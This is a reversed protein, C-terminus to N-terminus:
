MWKGYNEFNCWDVWSIEKFRSRSGIWLFGLQKIENMIQDVKVEKGDFVLDNRSRWVVWLAIQMIGYILKRWKKCGRVQKHWGLIDKIGFGYIGSIKCWKSVLDWVKQALECGVFLHDVDEDYLGCIKCRIEGVIVNRRALAVLTPVRDLSLRWALFNVKIPIWNNWEFENGLDTFRAAQISNKLSKVSFMGSEELSWSWRDEGNGLVAAGLESTLTWCMKGKEPTIGWLFERRLRELQDIVGSPARYLSFYYTPLANLVSKILTLRGGFSLTNAKWIALRKRFVDVVPQWNKILNMNAGVQLGLHKFPFSGVRCGLTNALGQIRNNDVNIGFVSSKSLNVRLGSALFFCRLIRRLNHVSAGEWNGVFIVDDAYLFHSLVEGNNVFRIGEYLGINCAKKMVGTLAEMAIIFLFPSLPDGQRLGRGCAFEQTPSGNVLVSARANIVTAMVWRRYLLPFKMQDMIDEMFGWNLSDYAKEIDVKFIFGEKKNSRLWPVLENLVLPGDLISRNALFATQEESILENIVMKMRNALAKSIVKNICGILSIPRYDGLGGPDTCKPVLAIFSSTCGQSITANLQFEESVKVFDEQLSGWCRRIFRFNIGDPGPAKDGECDWVADKIECLSFPAVLAEADAESIMKMVPCLLGPRDNYPEKFKEAFFSCVSDKILPPATEWIGNIMLGNIRNSCQNANVVKHFFNTSEDGELAWKIRSKQRLDMAKVKDVEMIVKKCEARTDLENPSLLREEAKVELEELIAIKKKYIAEKEAKIVNVREKIKFKIWKLKVALGLDSPGDFVFSSLSQRTFELVGPLDLWSNFIRTPIPGYDPSTLSM